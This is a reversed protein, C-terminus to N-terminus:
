HLGRRRGLLKRALWIILVLYGIFVLIGLVAGLLEDLPAAAKLVAQAAYAGPLIAGAALLQLIGTVVVVTLLKIM